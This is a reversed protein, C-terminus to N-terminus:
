NEKGGVPLSIMGAGNWIIGTIGFVKRVHNIGVVEKILVPFMVAQINVSLGLVMAFITLSAYSRALSGILCSVGSVAMMLSSLQFSTLINKDVIPGHTLRGFTGAIGYISLLFAADTKSVGLNIANPVFHLLAAFYGFGMFVAVMIVMMLVRISLVVKYSMVLAVTHRRVTKGVSSRRTQGNDKTNRQNPGMELEEPRHAAMSTAEASSLRFLSSFVCINALLAGCITMAGRWSYENKLYRVLPALVILGAGGGSLGVGNALVYKEKFYYGLIVACNSYALGIGFGPLFRCFLFLFLAFCSCFGHFFYIYSVINSDGGGKM